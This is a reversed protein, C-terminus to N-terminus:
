LWSTVNEIPQNNKAQRYGVWCRRLWWIVVPIFSAITIGMVKPTSSKVLSNIKDMTAAPDQDPAMNMISSPVDTFTFLIVASLILALPTLVATGMWFTRNMWQLHSQYRTEKAATRKSRMLYYAIVLLAIGLALTQEFFQLPYSAAFLGYLTMCSKRLKVEHEETQLRKLEALDTM